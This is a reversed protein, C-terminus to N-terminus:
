KPKEQRLKQKKCILFRVYAQEFVKSFRKVIGIEQETLSRGSYDNIFISSNKQFAASYSYTKAALCYDKVEQPTNKYGGFEFIHNLFSQSVEATYRPAIFDIGENRAKWYDVLIPHEFYSQYFKIASLFGPNEMWEIQDKSGEIHTVIAVGDNVPINLERLKEVVVTVVEGLEETKHM